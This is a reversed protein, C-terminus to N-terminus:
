AVSITINGPAVKGELISPVNERCFFNKLNTKCGLNYPNRTDLWRGRVNENTTIGQTIYYLDIFLIVGTKYLQPIVLIGCFLSFVVELANPKTSLRYVCCVITM